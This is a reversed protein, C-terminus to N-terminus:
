AAQTWPRGRRDMDGSCSGLIIGADQAHPGPQGGRRLVRLRLEHGAAREARITAGAGVISPSVTLGARAHGPRGNEDVGAMWGFFMVQAEPPNGGIVYGHRSQVPSVRLAPVASLTLVLDVQAPSFDIPAFVFTDVVGPEGSWGPTPFEYM